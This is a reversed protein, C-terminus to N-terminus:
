TESRPAQRSIGANAHMVTEELRTLASSQERGPPVSRVIHEALTRAADRIIKMDTIQDQTPAHYTFDNEVRALLTEQQTAM